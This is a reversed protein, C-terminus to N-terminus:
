VPTGSSRTYSTCCCQLSVSEMHQVSFVIDPFLSVSFYVNVKLGLSMIVLLM